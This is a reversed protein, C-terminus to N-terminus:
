RAPSEPCNGVRRAEYDYDFPAGGLIGQTQIHLVRPTEVAIRSQGYGTGACTYRVTVSSATQAVVSRPCGPGAHVLQLLVAPDAVCLTRVVSASGNERLQWEGPEVKQLPQAPGTAAILVAGAAAALVGLGYRM